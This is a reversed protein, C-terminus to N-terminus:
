SIQKRETTTLAAEIRRLLKLGVGRGNRIDAVLGPDNAVRMGFSTQTENTAKLYADISALLDVHWTEAERPTYPVLGCELMAPDFKFWEKIVRLHNFKKHLEREDRPEGEYCAILKLPEYHNNQITRIRSSVDYAFGIKVPGDDGAQILYIPM